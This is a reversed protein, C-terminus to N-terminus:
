VTEGSSKLREACLTHLFSYEGNGHDIVVLNGPIIYHNMKGPSNDEVGDIVQIIHGDGPSHVQKGYAYFDENKMGDTRHSDRNSEVIHFDYAYQQNRNGVHRNQDQKRGGNAVTWTGEFPLVLDTKTRYEAYPKEPGETPATKQSPLLRLGAIRGKSEFVINLRLLNNSKKFQADVELVVHDTQDLIRHSVIRHFDGLQPRLPDFVASLTSAPVTRKMEPTFGAEVVAYRGAALQELLVRIPAEYKQWADKSDSQSLALLSVILTQIIM